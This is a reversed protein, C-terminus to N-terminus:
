VAMACNQERSIPVSMGRMDILSSEGYLIHSIRMLVKDLGGSPLWRRIIGGKVSSSAFSGSALTALRSPMSCSAPDGSVNATRAAWGFADNKQVHDLSHFPCGWARATVTIKRIIVLDQDFLLGTTQFAIAAPSWRLNQQQRVMPLGCTCHQCNRRTSKM